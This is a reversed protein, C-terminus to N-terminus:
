VLEKGTVKKFVEGLTPYDSRINIVKSDFLASELTQKNEMSRIVSTTRGGTYTIHIENNKHSHRLAEPHGQELIKGNNLFAVKDCLATAEDMDHTTLMITTGQEKIRLLMEHIRDTTIPDLASTPEDLFLVEPEHLIAKCLLIRQKMGKSLLSVRKDAHAELGVEELVQRVKQKKTGYLKRFLELNDKVTLRDYLSSNDSLIGLQKVYSSKSFDKHMYGLVEVTGDTPEFEGTLIKITTTKGSGSPGLLGFIAGRGIEFEVGDLAKENGFTKKLDNVTIIAEM